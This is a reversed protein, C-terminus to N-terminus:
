LGHSSSREFTLHIARAVEEFHECLTSVHGDEPFVTLEGRSIARAMKQALQIPVNRDMGGHFIRTLTEGGFSVDYPQVHIRMDWATGKTGLELCARIAAQMAALRGPSSFSAVDGPPLFTRMRALDEEDTAKSEGAMTKLLLRLGPPFRRALLWVLRNMLPLNGRVEPDTMQWAGSVIVAAIVRKPLQAACAAAYPGGGSNGFVVFRDIGLSDALCVVDAAWHSLKRSPLFDSRGVGPRDAAIVRLGARDIAASGILAPELRSSPAGHFYLVPIGDSPGFEAYALQRGDPLTLTRNLREDQM